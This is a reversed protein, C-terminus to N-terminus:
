KKKARIKAMYAKAEKSGKVLRKGGKKMKPAEVPQPVAKAEKAKQEDRYKKADNSNKIVIDYLSRFFGM